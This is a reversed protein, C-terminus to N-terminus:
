GPATRPAATRCTWTARFDTVPPRGVVGARRLYLQVPDPLVALEPESVPGRSAAQASPWGRMLHHEFEARLSFPGRSAFGYGVAVVLVLNTATGVKADGWSSVIVIQSIVLAGAGFVWWWRPTFFIAAATFICLTGAVLWFLGAPQSIPQAM